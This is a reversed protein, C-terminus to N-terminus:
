MEANKSIFGYIDGEKIKEKISILILNNSFFFARSNFFKVILYRLNVM